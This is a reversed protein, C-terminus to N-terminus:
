SSQASSMARLSLMQPKRGTSCVKVRCSFFRDFGDLLFDGAFYAAQQRHDQVLAALVAPQIHFGRFHGQPQGHMLDARHGQALQQLAIRGAGILPM